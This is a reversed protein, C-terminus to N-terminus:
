RVVFRRLERLERVGVLWGVAAFVVIGLPVMTLVARFYGAFGGSGALWDACGWCAVGMAAAAALVRFTSAM